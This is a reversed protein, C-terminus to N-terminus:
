GNPVLSARIRVFTQLAEAGDGASRTSVILFLRDGHMFVDGQVANTDPGNAVTGEFTISPDGAFTTPSQETITMGNFTLGTLAAALPDMASSLETPIATVGLLVASGDGSKWVYDIEELTSGDTRAAPIKTVTPPGPAEVRFSDDAPRYTAWAASGEGVTDDTRAGIAAIALIALAAVVGCAGVVIAAIRLPSATSTAPGQHHQPSWPAVPPASWNAPGVPPSWTGPEVPPQWVASAPPPTIGPRTGTPDAGAHAAAVPTPAVFATRCFRCDTADSPLLFQCNPCPKMATPNSADQGPGSFNRFTVAITRDHPSTCRRDGPESGM